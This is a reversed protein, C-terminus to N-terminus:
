PTLEFNGTDDLRLQRFPAGRGPVGKTGPRAPSARV